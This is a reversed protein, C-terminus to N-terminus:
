VAVAELSPNSIALRPGAARRRAGADIREASEAIGIAFERRAAIREAM